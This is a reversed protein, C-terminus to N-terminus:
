KLIEDDVQDDMDDKKPEVLGDDLPFDYDIDDQPDISPEPM